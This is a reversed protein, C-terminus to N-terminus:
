QCFSLFACFFFINLFYISFAQTVSELHMIFTSGFSTGLNRAYVATHFSLGPALLVTPALLTCGVDWM